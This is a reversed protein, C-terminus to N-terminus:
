ASRISARERSAPRPRRWTYRAIVVGCAVWNVLITIDIAHPGSVLLIPENGLMHILAVLMLNSSQLCIVAMLGGYALLQPYREPHGVDGLAVDHPIHSAAFILTSIAAAAAMPHRLRGRTALASAAGGIVICRYLLEESYASLFAGSVDRTAPVAPGNWAVDILQLMQNSAWLALAVVGAVGLQRPTFGLDRWRLTTAGVVLGLSMCLSLAAAVGTTSVVPVWSAAEAWVDRHTWELTLLTGQLAVALGAVWPRISVRVDTAM